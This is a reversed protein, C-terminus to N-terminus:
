KIKDMSDSWVSTKDAKVFRETPLMLTFDWQKPEVLFFKSTVYSKLYRKICPAFLKFRSAGKLLRYNILIRAKEDLVNSNLASYLADMLKARNYPDLYHLNLGLFGDKKMEIPFILPFIDYYPLKDKTKPDYHFMFMSGVAHYNLEFLLHEQGEGAFLKNIDVRSINKAAERFWDKSTQALDGVLGVPLNKAIKTFLPFNGLSEAIPPPLGAM